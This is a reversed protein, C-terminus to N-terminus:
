TVFTQLILGMYHTGGFFLFLELLWLPTLEALSVTLFVFFLLHGIQGGRTKGTHGLQHPHQYLNHHHRDM